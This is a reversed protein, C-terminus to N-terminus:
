PGLGFYLSQLPEFTAGNRRWIKTPKPELFDEVENSFSFKQTQDLSSDVLSTWLPTFLSIHIDISVENEKKRSSMM